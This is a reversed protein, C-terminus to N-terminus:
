RNLAPQIARNTSAPFSHFYLSISNQRAVVTFFDMAAIAERHNILFAM